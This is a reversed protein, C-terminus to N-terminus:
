EITKTSVPPTTAEGVIANLESMEVAQEGKKMVIPQETAVVAAEAEAETSHVEHMSGRRKIEQQIDEAALTHTPHLNAHVDSGISEISKLVSSFRMKQMRVTDFLERRKSRRVNENQNLELDIVDAQITRGKSFINELKQRIAAYNPIEDESDDDDDDDDAAAVANKSSVDARSNLRTLNEHATARQLGSSQLTNPASKTTRHGDIDVADGMSLAKRNRRGITDYLQQNFVPPLPIESSAGDDNADVKKRIIPPASPPPSPLSEHGSEDLEDLENISADALSEPASLSHNLKANFPLLRQAYRSVPSLNQSTSKLSRSDDSQSFIRELHSKFARRSHDNEYLLKHSPAAEYTGIRFNPTQQSHQQQPQKEFPHSKHKLSAPPTAPTPPPTYMPSNFHSNSAHVIARVERGDETSSDDSAYEDTVTIAVAVATADAATNPIVSVITPSPPEIDTQNLVREMINRELEIKESESLEYSQDLQNNDADAAAADINTTTGNDNNNPDLSKNVIAYEVFYTTGNPERREIITHRVDEVSSIEDLKSHDLSYGRYLPPKYEAVTMTKSKEEQAPSKALAEMEIYEAKSDNPITTTTEDSQLNISQLEDSPVEEDIPENSDFSKQQFNENSIRIEVHNPSTDAESKRTQEFHLQENNPSPSQNQAIETDHVIGGNAGSTAVSENSQRSWTRSLM